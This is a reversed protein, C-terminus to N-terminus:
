FGLSELLDDVQAQSTVVDDRGTADVVPGDLGPQEVLRARQEPPTAELLLHLLQEELSQALAVVKNLVQGTLDHFDQALIIDTLLENSKAADQQVGVLFERTRQVTAEGAGGVDWQALLASAGSEIRSQVEKGSEAASLVREAAQGTLTAIYGLRARADPLASVANEVAHDYGLERLADHLKRTLEGVRQFVDYSSIESPTEEATIPIPISRSESRAIHESMIANM